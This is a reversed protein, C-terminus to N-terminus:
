LDRTFLNNKTKLYVMVRIIYSPPHALPIKLKWSHTGASPATRKVEAAAMVNTIVSNGFGNLAYQTISFKNTYDYTYASDANSKM